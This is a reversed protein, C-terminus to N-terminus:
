KRRLAAPSAMNPGAAGRGGTVVRGRAGGGGGGGCCCSCGPLRRRRGLSLSAVDPGGQGVSGTGVRPRPSASLAMKTVPVPSAGGSHVGHQADRSNFAAAAMNLVPPRRPSQVGRRGHEPLASPAALPARLRPWRPFPCTNPTAAIPIGQRADQALLPCSPLTAGGCVRSHTPLPLFSVLPAAENQPSTGRPTSLTYFLCGPSGAGFCAVGGMRWTGSRGRAGAARGPNGSDGPTPPASSTIKQLLPRPKLPLLAM